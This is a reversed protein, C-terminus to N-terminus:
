FNAHQRTIESFWKDNKDDGEYAKYYDDLIACREDSQERTMDDFIHGSQVLQWVKAVTEYWDFQFESSIRNRFSAVRILKKDGEGGPKSVLQEISTIFNGGVPEGLLWGYIALQQAWGEDIDELHVAVNVHIDGILMLQADKHPKNSTRMHPAFDPNWGDRVNIYNPKPSMASAACYGNVKFDSVCHIGGNTIYFIDPKGLLPIGDVVAEHALRGELSFEFRPDEIATQLEQALDNLAGSLKYCNFVYESHPLAWDRNQSEVQEEFITAFAFRPDAGHGYLFEHLYSKIRADVASGISMPKTQPQKPPRNEALYRLYYEDRDSLFTGIASPSLYKVQRMLTEKINTVFRGLLVM